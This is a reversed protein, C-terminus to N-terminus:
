RAHKRHARDPRDEQREAADDRVARFGPYGTSKFRIGKEVDVTAAGHATAWREIPEGGTGDALTHIRTDRAARDSWTWGWAARAGHYHVPLPGDWHGRAKWRALVDGGPSRAVVTIVANLQHDREAVQHTAATHELAAGPVSPGLQETLTRKGPGYHAAADATTRQVLSQGGPKRDLASM